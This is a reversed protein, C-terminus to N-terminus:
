GVLQYKNENAMIVEDEMLRYLCSQVQQAKLKTGRQIDRSSVPINNNRNIFRLIKDEDKEEDTVGTVAHCRSMEILYWQMLRGANKMSNASVEAAQEDEYLTMLAALRAANISLKSTYGRYEHWREGIGAALEYNDHLSLLADKAGGGLRLLRPELRRLGTEAVSPKHGELLGYIRDNFRQVAQEDVPNAEFGRLTRTGIRSEPWAFLFRNAFGQEFYAPNSFLQDGYRPQMQLSVSLRVGNLVDSGGEKRTRNQAVGDYYKSFGALSKHINDRNMTFGGFFQAAEDTIFSLSLHGHKFQYFLGEITPDNIVKLPRLPEVPEVLAMFDAELATKTVKDKERSVLRRLHQRDAEYLENRLRYNSYDIEHQLQLNDQHRRVGELAYSEITSKGEGSEAVTFTWISIPCRKSNLLEVDAHDQLALSVATIVGHACMEVPTRTIRALAEVPDALAGLAHTPYKERTIENEM